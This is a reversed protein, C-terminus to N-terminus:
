DRSMWCCGLLLSENGNLSLAKVISSAYSEPTENLPITNANDPTDVTTNEVVDSHSTNFKKRTKKITLLEKGTTLEVIYAVYQIDPDKDLSSILRQAPSNGEMVITDRCQNRLKRLQGKSLQIGTQSQLLTQIANTAINKKLQDLVRDLEDKEVDSRRAKVQEPLFRYHGNHCNCGLGYKRIYWRKTTSCQYITLSFKCRDVEDFPRDSTSTGDSVRRSAKAIIGRTCLLVVRRDSQKKKTKSISSSEVAIKFGNHICFRNIHKVVEEQQVFNPPFWYKHRKKMIPGVNKDHGAGITETINVPITDSNLDISLLLIIPATEWELLSRVSEDLNNLVDEDM